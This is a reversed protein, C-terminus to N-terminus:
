QCFDADDAWVREFGTGRLDANKVAEVVASSVLLSGRTMEPIKFAHIGRIAESRLVYERIDMVRGSSFRVVRSREGDLADVVMLPNYVFLEADACALPLLEGFPLLVEGLVRVARSTLVLVHDGLWPLDAPQLPLGDDDIRLLEVAVPRWSQTRRTGDFQRFTEFDVHDRPLVWEFGEPVSPRFISLATV